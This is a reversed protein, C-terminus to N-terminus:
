GQGGIDRDTSEFVLHKEDVEHQEMKFDFQSLRKLLHALALQSKKQFVLVEADEVLECASRYLSSHEERLKEAPESLRPADQVVQDLYGDAEKIAFQIALQDRMRTLLEAFRSRHTRLLAPNDVFANLATRLDELHTEGRQIEHADPEPSTQPEDRNETPQKNTM